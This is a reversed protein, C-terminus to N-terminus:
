QLNRRNTCYSPDDQIGLTGFDKWWFIRQQNLLQRIVDRQTLDLKKCEQSITLYDANQWELLVRKRWQKLAELVVSELKANKHLWATREIGMGGNRQSTTRQVWVDLAQEGGDALIGEQHMTIWLARIKDTPTKHNKGRTRPSAQRKDLGKFGKVAFHELINELEWGTCDTCSSKKGKTVQEIVARYTDDDLGLQKKAIHIKAILARRDTAQKM